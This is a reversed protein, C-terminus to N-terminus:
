TKSLNAIITICHLVIQLEGSDDINLYGFHQL